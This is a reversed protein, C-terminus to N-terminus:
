APRAVGLVSRGRSQHQPERVTSATEAAHNSSALAHAEPVAHSAPDDAATVSHSFEPITARAAAWASGITANDSDITPRAQQRVKM